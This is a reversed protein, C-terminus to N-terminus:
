DFKLEYGLDELIRFDKISPKGGLGPQVASQHGEDDKEDSSVHGYSGSSDSVMQVGQSLKGYFKGDEMKASSLHLGPVDKAVEALRACTNNKGFVAATGIGLAHGIEHSVLSTNVEKLKIQAYGPQHDFCSRPVDGVLTTGGATISPDLSIDLTIQFNDTIKSQWWGVAEEILQKQEDSINSSYKYKVTFGKSENKPFEIYQLPIYEKSEPFYLIAAGNGKWGEFSKPVGGERKRWADVNSQPFTQINTANQYGMARLFRTAETVVAGKNNPDAAHTLSWNVVQNVTCDVLVGGQDLEDMFTTVEAPLGACGEMNKFSKAAASTKQGMFIAGGFLTLLITFTLIKIIRIKM